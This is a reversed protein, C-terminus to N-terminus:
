IERLSGELLLVRVSLALSERFNEEDLTEGLLEHIRRIRYRVTNKHCFLKEATENLDFGSTVYERATLLLNRVDEDGSSLLPKMFEKASEALKGSSMQAALLRYVGTNRFKQSRCGRIRGIQLAWFAERVATKFADRAVVSSFGTVADELPLGAAIAADKLLVNMDGGATDNRTMFVLGGQRFRVFTVRDSYRPDLSLRRTFRVMHDRDFTQMTEKTDEFGEFCVAQLYEGKKPLVMRSLRACENETIVDKLVKEFAEEVEKETMDLGAEKKVALVIDEFFADDTIEYIPFDNTEAYALVEAPLEKFFIPKYCMCAVGMEDLQKVAPLIMSADYRAFLLSTLGISNGYFMEERTFEIGDAFEFDIIETANVEKDLGGEGTILRFGSMEPLKMVDRLKM